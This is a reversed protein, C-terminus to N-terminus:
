ISVFNNSTKVWVGFIFLVRTSFQIFGKGLIYIQQSQSLSLSILPHTQLHPQRHTLSVPYGRLSKLSPTSSRAFIFRWFNCVQMIVPFFISFKGFGSLLAVSFQKSHNECSAMFVGKPYNFFFGKWICPFNRLLPEVLEVWSNCICWICSVCLM